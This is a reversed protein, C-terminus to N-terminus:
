SGHTFLSRNELPILMNTLMGDTKEKARELGCFAIKATEDKKQCRTMSREM